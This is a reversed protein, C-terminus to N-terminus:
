RRIVISGYGVVRSLDGSTDGSTAYKLLSAKNGQMEKAAVMAAAVPGYGCMTCHLRECREYLEEEDLAIVAEMVSSDKKIAVSHPEYHTLDSSAIVVLNGGAQGISKGLIRATEIDQALMAIPVIRVKGYLYQLWPLQVEISHEHVHATEDAKILDGLLRQALKKDVEIDGLPTSWSGEAWMSVAGGYGTHNPGLIVATDFIGDQALEKYAHAAVPGSYYYGAHPVVMAVVQRLGISNVQPM